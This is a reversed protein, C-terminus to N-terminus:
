YYDQREVEKRIREFDVDERRRRRWLSDDLTEVGEEPASGESRPGDIGRKEMPRRPNDCVHIGAEFRIGSTFDTALLLVKEL